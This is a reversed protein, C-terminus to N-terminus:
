VTTGVDFADMAKAFALIPQEKLVYAALAHIDVRRCYRQDPTQSAEAELSRHHRGAAVAPIAAYMREAAFRTLGDRDRGRLLATLQEVAANGAQMAQEAQAALDKEQGTMSTEAFAKWRARMQGAASEVLKLGSEWAVGGDRVKHATDVINVAYLDSVAKLDRLPKGRDNFVTELGQNATSAAYWGAGAVAMLAAILLLLSTLLRAKITRM